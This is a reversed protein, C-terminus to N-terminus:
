SLTCYIEKKEGRTVNTRRERETRVSEAGEEGKREGGKKAGGQGKQQQKEKKNEPKPKKM